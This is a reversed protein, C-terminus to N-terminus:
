HVYMYNLYSTNSSIMTNLGFSLGLVHIGLGGSDTCTPYGGNFLSAPFGHRLGMLSSNYSRINNYNNSFYVNTSNIEINLLLYM